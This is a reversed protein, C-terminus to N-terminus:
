RALSYSFPNEAFAAYIYTGGSANWTNNTGRLKFGNSLIDIEPFSSEAGSSEALLLNNAVNYPNRSTDWMSWGTALSSSKILIFRPRFGLYVFSGDASGNGTYLGLKSYGAIEAFCYAVILNGSGNVEAATGISFVSSTPATSNFCTPASVQASTGNLNQAFVWSTYNSNGTIWATSAASRNKIIIFKPAIGLGHGVTANAGTGTYTVISFGATPNASVQSSISGSTNTLAAANSAKWQWGIYTSANTNAFAYSANYAVGFGNLNFSSVAPSNTQAIASDSYLTSTVGRVSDYLANNTAASRSKVWVFDPQFSTGNVTNAISQTSGNGTYTTAAFQTAGNAITPTPLNYTNLAKFGTPPTYTFPRQGFNVYMNM